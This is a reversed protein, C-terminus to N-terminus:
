FAADFCCHVIFNNIEVYAGIEVGKNNWPLLQVWVTHCLGGVATCQFVTHKWILTM